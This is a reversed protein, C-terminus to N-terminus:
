VRSKCVVLQLYVKFIDSGTFPRCIDQFFQRDASIGQAREAPNCVVDFFCNNVTQKAM